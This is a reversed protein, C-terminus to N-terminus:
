DNAHSALAPMPSGEGRLVRNALATDYYVWAKVIRGQSLQFLFHYLNSYSGQVPFEARSEVVAAVRDEEATLPGVIFDITGSVTEENTAKIRAIQDRCSRTKRKALTWWQGDPDVLESVRDFRSESWAQFFEEVVAKNAAVTSQAEIM